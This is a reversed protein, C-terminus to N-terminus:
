TSRSLMNSAATVKVTRTISGAALDGRMHTCRWFKKGGRHVLHGRVMHLRSLSRSSGKIVGGNVSRQSLSLSVEIHDLLEPKGAKKRLVNLKGFEASRMQVYRSALVASFLLTAGFDAWLGHFLSSIVDVEPTLEFHSLWESGVEGGIHDQLGALKQPLPMKTAAASLCRDFDFYILGQACQAGHEGDEWFSRLSGERGDKSAEVLVGARRKNLEDGEIWELWFNEAPMRLAMNDPVFMASDTELLVKLYRTAERDLVYRVPVDRVTDAYIGAAPM